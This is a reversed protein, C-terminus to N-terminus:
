GFVVIWLGVTFSNKIPKCNILDVHLEIHMFKGVFRPSIPMPNCEGSVYM